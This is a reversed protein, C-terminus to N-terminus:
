STYHVVQLQMYIDSCIALYKYVRCIHHFHMSFSEVIFIM